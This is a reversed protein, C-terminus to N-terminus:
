KQFGINTMGNSNSKEVNKCSNRRPENSTISQGLLSFVIPLLILAHILALVIVLFIIKFMTLFVYAPVILLAALAIITSLGAQIVPWAIAHMATRLKQEVTPANSAVFAYSVHAAFDVSFGIGMILGLVSIFDLRVGWFSMFGLVGAEVSAISFFVCFAIVLHPIFVLTVVFVVVGALSVLKLALGGVQIYNDIYGFWPNFVHVEMNPAEKAVKRLGLVMNTSDLESQIEGGQIIYRTALIKTYDSNFKIDLAALKSDIQYENRLTDIFQAETSINVSPELLRYREVWGLFDRLWNEGFKPTVFPVQTM